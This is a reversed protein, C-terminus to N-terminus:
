GVNQEGRPPPCSWQLQRHYRSKHLRDSLCYPTALRQYGLRPRWCIREQWPKSEPLDIKYVTDIVQWQSVWANDNSTICAYLALFIDISNESDFTHVLICQLLSLRERPINNMSQIAISDLEWCKQRSTSLVFRKWVTNPLQLQYNTQLQTLQYGEEQGQSCTHLYM